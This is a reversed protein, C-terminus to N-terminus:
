IEHDPPVYKLFDTLQPRFGRRWLEDLARRAVELNLLKIKGNAVNTFTVPHLDVIPALDALTPVERRQGPPKQREQARLEELYGAFTIYLNGEQQIYTTM